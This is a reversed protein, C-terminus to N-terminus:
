VPGAPVPVHVHPQTCSQTYTHVYTHIHAYTYVYINPTSGGIMRYTTCTQDRRGPQEPPLHLIWKMPHKGVLVSPVLLIALHQSLLVPKDCLGHVVAFVIHLM